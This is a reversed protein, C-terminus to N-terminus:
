KRLLGYICLDYVNDGKVVAEALTGELKFNNKESVKRSAINPAYIRAMIRRLALQNFAMPCMLEVAKTMIGKGAYERRLCYGLEGMQYYVDTQKEVSISGIPIDDVWILKYLITGEGKKQLNEWCAKADNDTYPYPMRNRMYKRDINNCIEVLALLDQERLNKLEIKM